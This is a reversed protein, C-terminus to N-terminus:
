SPRRWRPWIPTATVTAPLEIGPLFTPNRRQRNIADVTEAEHAWLTPTRGARTAAIALATGWAGAGVIGIKDM